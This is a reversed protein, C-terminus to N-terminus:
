IAKVDAGILIMALGKKEQEKGIAILGEIRATGKSAAWNKRKRTGFSETDYYM